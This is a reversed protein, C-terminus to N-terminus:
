TEFRAAIKQVTRCNRFTAQIGLQKELKALSFESESSRVRCLWYIEKQATYFEDVPSRFAMLKEQAAPVLPQALFGIYLTGSSSIEPPFPQCRSIEVLESRTRIFTAAEYGLSTQLHAAIRHELLRPEQTEAEFLVNGSAIFTEVASFGLDIFLQRLAEMKVVHGGVNIARLFAIYSTM